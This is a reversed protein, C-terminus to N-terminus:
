ININLLGFMCFVHRGRKEGGPRTIQEEPFGIATKARPWLPRQQNISREPSARVVAVFESTIIASVRHPPSRFQLQPQPDGNIIFVCIKSDKKNLSYNTNVLSREPIAFQQSGEYLLIGGGYCCIM